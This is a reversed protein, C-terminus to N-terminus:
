GPSAKLTVWSDCMARLGTIHVMYTDPKGTGTTDNRAPDRPSLRAPYRRSILVRNDDIQGTSEQCGRIM